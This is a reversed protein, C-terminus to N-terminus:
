HGRSETGVPAHRLWIREIEELSKEKTEPVFRIMFGIAIGCLAGYIWFPFAHHFVRVLWPDQDLMPFTQSVVFNAIWLSVTAVSMARGRIRTPFVESLIVWTVPGVSLAFSAIYGLIFVLVWVDTRQFYTALGLALLSIGMGAFGAIMLPKRGWRDVTWIAVVTFAMNVVGVVVTQLLAVDSKAGAIRKFIEPAYYLFVNIGTVQQLVALTVGIALAARMGPQFLEALTGSEGAIAQEIEVREARAREAGNIRELVAMAAEPQNKRILFRPSEPV